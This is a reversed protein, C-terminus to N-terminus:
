NSDTYGCVFPACAHLFYGQLRAPLTHVTHSKTRPSLHCLKSSQIGSRHPFSGKRALPTTSYSAVPSFLLLFGVFFLARCRTHLQKNTTDTTQPTLLKLTASCIPLDMWYVSCLHLITAFYRPLQIPTGESTHPEDVTGTDDNRM